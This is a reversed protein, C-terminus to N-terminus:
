IQEGHLRYWDRDVKERFSESTKYREDDMKELLDDKSLGNDAIVSSSPINQEGYSRRIKNLASIFLANNSANAIANTEEATLTGSSQFSTLWADTSKIINDAHRGLKEMEEEKKYKVEQELEGQSKMYFGVVDEVLEQSMNNEKALSIFSDMVEDEGQKYDEKYFNLDYKGDKPPKHKGASFKNRLENYSKLLADKKVEGKDQDWFKEEVDEPREIIKKPTVEENDKQLHQFEKEKEDNKNDKEQTNINLLSQNEEVEASEKTNESELAQTQEEAM